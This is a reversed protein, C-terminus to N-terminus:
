KVGLEDAVDKLGLEELKKRTPISTKKDWGCADYFEDLMGDLDKIVQGKAPGTAVPERIKQPLTDDKRTLGERVNFCKELNLVRESIKMVQEQFVIIGYTDKLIEELEPFIYSVKEKGLKRNVYQDAMGSGLPGPRYLANLVILHEIKEPKEHVLPLSLFHCGFPRHPPLEEVLSM